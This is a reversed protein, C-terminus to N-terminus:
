SVGAQATIMSYLSRVASIYAKESGPAYTVWSSGDPARYPRSVVVGRHKDDEGDFFSVGAACGDLKIKATPGRWTICVQANASNHVKMLEALTHSTNRSLGAGNLIDRVRESEKAAAKTAKGEHEKLKEQLKSENDSEERLDERDLRDPGDPDVRTKAATHLTDMSASVESTLPYPQWKDHPDFLSKLNRAVQIVPDGSVPVAAISMQGENLMLTTIIDDRVTVMFGIRPIDRAAYQINYHKLEDPIEIRVRCREDYLLVLGWVAWQWQDVGAFLEAAEPTFTKNSGNIVNWRVLDADIAPGFPFSPMPGLEYPPEYLLGLQYLRILHRQDFRTAGILPRPESEEQTDVYVPPTSETELTDGPEDSDTFSSRWGTDSDDFISDQDDFGGSGDPGDYFPTGDSM